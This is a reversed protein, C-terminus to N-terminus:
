IETDINNIYSACKDSMFVNSNSVDFGSPTQFLRLGFWGLALVIHETIQAQQWEFAALTSDTVFAYVSLPLGTDQQQKWSVILRPHHSIHSNNMLWHLIYLRYVNINLKGAEIEEVPIYRTIEQNARLAATEQRTLPHIWSTDIIFTRDLKRGYTKGEMMNQLNKFHSSYLASTPLTSTTTDWNYITVTTLTIRKVEGDVDYQPVQIWDGIHILHNMRLHIFATVGKITDQFIWSMIWGVVGLATAFVPHSMINSIILTGIVLVGITVLISIQCFTIGTENKQLVFINTLTRSASIVILGLLLLASLQLVKSVYAGSLIAPICSAPAMTLFVLASVALVTLIWIYTPKLLAGCIQKRLSGSSLLKKILIM